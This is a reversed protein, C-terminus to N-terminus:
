IRVCQKGRKEGDKVISHVLIVPVFSRCLQVPLLFVQCLFLFVEGQRLKRMGRRAALGAAMEFGLRNWQFKETLNRKRPPVIECLIEKM